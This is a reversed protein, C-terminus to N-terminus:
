SKESETFLHEYKSIINKPYHLNIPYLPKSHNELLECIRRGVELVTIESIVHSSCSKAFEPVNPPLLVPRNLALAELSVRPLGENPSINVCLEAGSMLVLSHERPLNGLYSVGKMKLLNNNKKNSFKNLGVLVFTINPFKARVISNYAELLVDVAKDEKVAGAYIIYKRGELKYIKSLSNFKKNVEHINIKEQIVPILYLKNSDAGESLLYEHVNNSCCVIKDFKNLLRVKEQPLLRDRVDAVFYASQFVTKLLRFVLGFIGPHNLFSSHILVIRPREKFMIWVLWFYTINQLFYYFIDRIINRDRGAWSPFLSYYDNYQKGAVRESVVVVRLNKKDKLLKSLTQYYVAAGGAAGFYIPTIILLSNSM